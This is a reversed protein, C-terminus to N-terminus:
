TGGGTNTIVRKTDIAEVWNDYSGEHKDCVDKFACFTCHGGWRLEEGGIDTTAPRPGLQKTNRMEIILKYFDEISKWTIISPTWENKDEARYELIDNEWRLYFLKYFPRITGFKVSPYKRKAVFDLKWYNRSTYALSYPVNLQRAYIGAQLINESKFHGELHTDIATNISFVGKLEIGLQPVGDDDLLVIDPRGTIKVGDLEFSVPIEEECKIQGAWGRRLVDLWASENGVGAAFMLKTPLDNEEEIGLFRALAKRHCNGFIKGDVVAGATGARLTGVKTKEKDAHEADQAAHGDLLVKMLDM